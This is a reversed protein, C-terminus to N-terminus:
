CRVTPTSPPKTVLHYRVRTVVHVTASRAGRDMFNERCSYQLANGNGEGPSKGWGPILGMDGVSCTSEKRVSGGEWGLM